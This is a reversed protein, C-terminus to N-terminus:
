RIHSLGLGKEETWKVPPSNGDVSVSFLASRNDNIDIFAQKLVFAVTRGDPSIQPEGPERLSLIDGTTMGRVEEKVQVPIQIRDDDSTPPGTQGRMGPTSTLM